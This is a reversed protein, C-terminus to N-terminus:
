GGSLGFHLDDIDSTVTGDPDTESPRDTSGEFYGDFFKLSAATNDATETDTPYIRADTPSNRVNRTVNELIYRTYTDTENEPIREDPDLTADSGVADDLYFKPRTNLGSEDADTDPNDADVPNDDVTVATVGAPPYTATETNGGGDTYM